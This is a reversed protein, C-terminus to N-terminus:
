FSALARAFRFSLGGSLDIAISCSSFDLYWAVCRPTSLSFCSVVLSPIMFLAVLCAMPRKGFKGVSPTCFGRFSAPRPRVGMRSLAVCILISCRARTMFLAVSLPNVAWAWTWRSRDCNLCQDRSASSDLGRLSGVSRMRLSALWMGPSYYSQRICTWWSLSMVVLMLSAEISTSLVRWALRTEIYPCISVFSCSLITRCCHLGM